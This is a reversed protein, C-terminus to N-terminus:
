LCKLKPDNVQTHISLKEEASYQHGTIAKRFVCGSANLKQYNFGGNHVVSVGARRACLGTIYIDELWFLKIELSAQYLLSSAKTSMAYATGSTYKPYVKENFDELPTYWKSNKNQVPKAGIFSHGMVFDTRSESRLAQVLNQVNVYMDDDAKLMYKSSNCYTIVWKLLAVSKISLNRYSDVFDEQIIDHYKDSEAMLQAQLNPQGAGLIFVVTVNYGAAAKSGWTSRVAMRDDFNQVATIVGIILETYATCATPENIIYSFSHPNVINLASSSTNKSSNGLLMSDSTNRSLNQTIGSMQYINWNGKRLQRPTTQLIDSHIQLIQRNNFYIAYHVLVGVVIIGLVVQSLVKFSSKSYCFMVKIRHGTCM